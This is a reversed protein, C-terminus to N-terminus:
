ETSFVMNGPERGTGAFSEEQLARYSLLIYDASTFGLQRAFDDIAEPRGELEIFNGIPTEDLLVHLDGAEFTTRYKQYRYVARYGLKRLITDFAEPDPIDVEIEGRVKYRSSESAAPEKYTLVATTGAPTTMRRLRLLRGARALALGGSDYLVNDEFVRSAVERTRNESAAAPSAPVPLQAADSRVQAGPLGAARAGCAVIRKKADGPPMTLRLKIEVEDKM